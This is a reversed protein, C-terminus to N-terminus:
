ILMLVWYVRNSDHVVLPEEQSPRSFVARHMNPFNLIDFFIDSRAGGMAEGRLAAVDILHLHDVPRLLHCDGAGSADLNVVEFTLELVETQIM